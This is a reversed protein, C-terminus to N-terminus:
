ARKEDAEGLRVAAFLDAALSDDAEALQLHKPRNLNVLIIM